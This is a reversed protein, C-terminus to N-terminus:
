QMKQKSIQCTGQCCKQRTAQWIESHDSVLRVAELSQSTKCYSTKEPILIPDLLSVSFWDIKGHLNKMEQVLGSKKYIPRGPFCVEMLNSYYYLYNRDLFHEQFHPKCFPLWERQIPSSAKTWQPRTVCLAMMPESLPKDGAQHWAMIQILAPKNDIQGWPVYKLSIEILIWVSENLFICKFTNDALLRGNQRPRLTNVINGRVKVVEWTVLASYLFCNNIRNRGM